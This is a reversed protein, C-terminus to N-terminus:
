SGDVCMRTPAAQEMDRPLHQMRKNLLLLYPLNIIFVYVRQVHAPPVQPLTYHVYQLEM